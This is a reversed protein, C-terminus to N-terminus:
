VTESKCNDIWWLRTADVLGPFNYRESIFTPTAGLEEVKKATIPGIVGIPLRGLMKGFCHYFGEVASPSAFLVLDAKAVLDSKDYVMYSTEYAEVVDVKWGKNRLGLPVVDRAVKARPLLIADNARSPAPFEDVFTEGVYKTPVFDVGVRHALVTEKTGSGIAAIKVGGLRRLDGLADFTRKVSTSSTFVIWSFSGIQGLARQLSEGQDSPNSISIMPLRVVEAGLEELSHSLRDEGYARTVVVKLGFLPRVDLWSFDLAAVSGVVIIAPSEVQLMGLESLTTRIVRQSATTGKSIVAVPTLPDMGVRRLEESIEVRHAVGMLVVLTLGCRNLADWDYKLPEGFRGHGTVVVYGQAIGRHTLSIGGFLPVGNVSSVGPVVEFGIEAAKLADAEEGGRGFVFPDGGKLRVICRHKSALEVLLDNIDSQNTPKGPRKGVDILVASPHCLQLVSESVLYDYVVVDARSLVELARLTLLEKRGPGAGVLYVLGFKSRQNDM